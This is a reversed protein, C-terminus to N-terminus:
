VSKFGTSVTLLKNGCKWIKVNVYKGREEYLKELSGRM